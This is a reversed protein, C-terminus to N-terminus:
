RYIQNSTELVTEDENLIKSRGATREISSKEYKVKQSSRIMEMKFILSYSYM